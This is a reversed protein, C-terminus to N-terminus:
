HKLLPELLAAERLRRPRLEPQGPFHSMWRYLEEWTDTKAGRLAIKFTEPLTIHLAEGFSYALSYLLTQVPAPLQGFKVQSAKNWFHRLRTLVRIKVQRDIILAEDRSVVLPFLRIFERADKGKKGLYPRLKKAIEEPLDLRMLDDYNRQGLDFGTAITVGSPKKDSAKEHPVYGKLIQAGEMSEIFEWDVGGMDTTM